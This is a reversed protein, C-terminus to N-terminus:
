SKGGTPTIKDITFLYVVRGRDKFSKSESFGSDEAIKRWENRTKLKRYGLPNYILFGRMGKVMEFLMFTGKSKLVRRIETLAPIIQNEKLHNFVGACTVCDFTDKEFPIALINGSLFEVREGVGEVAANENAIQLVNKTDIGTVKGNKINKALLISIRGRGSGVDLILENGKLNLESVIRELIDKNQKSDKILSYMGLFNSALLYFGFIVVLIGFIQMIVIELIYGVSLIIIGLIIVVSFTSLITRLEYYEYKATNNM